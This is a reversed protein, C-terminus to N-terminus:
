ATAEAAILNASMDHFRFGARALHAFFAGQTMKATAIMHGLVDRVSWGPCLSATAWQEDTLTALDAALAEREGHILPWPSSAAMAGGKDRWVGVSVARRPERNMSGAGQRRHKVHGATGCTTKAPAQPESGAAPM